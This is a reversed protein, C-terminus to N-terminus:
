EVGPYPADVNGLLTARGQMERAGVDVRENPLARRPQYLGVAGACCGFRLVIVTPLYPRSRHGVRVGGQGREALAATTGALLGSLRTQDEGHILGRQHGLSRSATRKPWRIHRRPKEVSLSIRMWTPRPSSPSRGCREFEFAELRAGLTGDRSGGGARACCGPACSKGFSIRGRSLFAPPKKAARRPHRHWGPARGAPGRDPSDALRVLQVAHTQPGHRGPPLERASPHRATFEPQPRIRYVYRSSSCM